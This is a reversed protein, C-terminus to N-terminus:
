AHLIYSIFGDKWPYLGIVELKILITNITNFDNKTYVLFCLLIKSITTYIIQHFLM